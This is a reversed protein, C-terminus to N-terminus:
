TLRQLIYEELKKEHGEIKKFASKLDNKTVLGVNRACIPCHLIGKWSVIIRAQLGEKCSICQGEFPFYYL